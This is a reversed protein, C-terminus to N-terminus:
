VRATTRGGGTAVLAIAHGLVDRSRYARAVHRCRGGGIWARLRDTVRPSVITVRAGAALLGEVKREAVIGGGVVLCSRGRLDLAIPYHRAPLPASAPAM